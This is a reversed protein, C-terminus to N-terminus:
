GSQTSELERERLITKIRAIARRVQRPRAMNTMRGSVQQFRLTFLERYHEELQEHLEDDKMRRLEHAKM